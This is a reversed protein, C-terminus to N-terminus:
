AACEMIAHTYPLRLLDTRVEVVVKGFAAEALREYEVPRRVHQGRDNRIILRALWHQPTTVAPDITLMRGGPKLRRRTAALLEATQADSLHHLLGIALIIDFSGDIGSNAACVDANLFHAHGGYRSRAQEIYGPNHDVGWYDVGRMLPAFDAPGCGVDLVRDGPRPRIYHEVIYRRLHPGGILNQLATYISAQKLLAWPGTSREDMASVVCRPWGTSGRIMVNRAIGSDNCM